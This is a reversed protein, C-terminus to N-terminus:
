KGNIEKNDLRNFIVFTTVLQLLGEYNDKWETNYIGIDELKPICNDAILEIQDKSITGKFIIEQNDNSYYHELELSQIFNL